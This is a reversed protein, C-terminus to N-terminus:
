SLREVIKTRRFLVAAATQLNLQSSKGFLKVSTSRHFRWASPLLDAEMAIVAVFNNAENFAIEETLLRQVQAPSAATAQTM